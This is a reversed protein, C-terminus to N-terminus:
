VALERGAFEMRCRSDRQSGLDSVSEAAESRDRNSTAGPLHCRPNMVSSPFSSIIAPMPRKRTPASRVLPNPRAQSPRIGPSIWQLWPLKLTWKGIMVQMRTLTM